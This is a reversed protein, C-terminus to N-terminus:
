RAAYHLYAQALHPDLRITKMSISSRRTSNHKGARAWGRLAFTKAERLDLGDGRRLRRHNSGTETRAGPPHSHKAYAKAMRPDLRIAEDCDALARDLEHKEARNWARHVLSDPIARTSGSRRM